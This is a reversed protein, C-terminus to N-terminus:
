LQTRGIFGVPASIRCRKSLLGGIGLDRAVCGPSNCPYPVHSLLLSHTGFKLLDDNVALFLKAFSSVFGHFYFVIDSCDFMM